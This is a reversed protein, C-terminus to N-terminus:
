GSSEGSSIECEANLKARIFYVSLGFAPVALVLGIVPMVSLGLVVFGLGILGFVFGLFYKSIVENVCM